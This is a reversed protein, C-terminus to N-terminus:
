KRSSLDAGPDVLFVPIGRLNSVSSIATCKGTEPDPYGDAFEVLTKHESACDNNAVSATGACCRGVTYINDIPRYAALFGKLTGDPQFSMQFRADRFEHDQVALPGWTALVWKLYLTKVPDTTLKGNVVRGNVKTRWHANSTVTITQNPLAQGDSGQIPAEEPTYIGVEVQEDNMPDDLGRVEIVYHDM